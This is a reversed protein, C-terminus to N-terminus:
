RGRRERASAAPASTIALHEAVLEGLRDFTAERRAEPDPLPAALPPLGKRQRLLDVFARTLRPNKFLDHVSTGFIPLAEHMAGEVGEAHRYLPRASGYRLVGAHIEYGTIEGAAAFPNDATPLYRRNRVLKGPAFEVETDLLGLGAVTGHESELRGEDWLTRGLMQFGACIGVVPTSRSLEVVADALGTRRLHELDWVTNKSGPLVVADPAGLQECSRVFRVRVGAEDALYDLDNANSIHPLFLVAVDIEPAASPRPRVRDEEELDLWVYPVVGVVPIGTQQEIFDIAPQLVARDGRFKNVIFGEILERDAPAVLELVRLSGLLEAAVGGKDIDAVIFVRAGLLHALGMNVVDRRRLNPEACSGAGEAVILEYRADLHAISARIATTKLEQLTDTLFYERASVDRYPRGHVILQSTDDSKPKLLLPNMHVSPETRAAFAQVATARAIEEDAATVFSNLSMNQSKFPTVAIGQRAFARCLGAVLTTKGAHSGTGQIMIPRLSAM